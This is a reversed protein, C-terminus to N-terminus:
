DPDKQGWPTWILSTGHVCLSTSCVQYSNIIKDEDRGEGSVVKVVPLDHERAFQLDRSDHGPVGLCRCVM